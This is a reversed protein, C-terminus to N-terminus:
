ACARAVDASLIGGREKYCGSKILSFQENDCENTTVDNTKAYGVTNIVLDRRCTETHVAGDEPLVEYRITKLL